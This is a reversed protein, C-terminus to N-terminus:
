LDLKEFGKLFRELVSKPIVTVVNGLVFEVSLTPYNQVAKEVSVKRNRYYLYKVEVYKFEESGAERRYLILSASKKATETNFLDYEIYQYASCGYLTEVFMWKPNLHVAVDEQTGLDKLDQLFNCQHAVKDALELRMEQETM